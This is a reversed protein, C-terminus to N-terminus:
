KGCQYKEVMRPYANMIYKVFEDTAMAYCKQNANSPCTGVFESRANIKVNGCNYKDDPCGKPPDGVTPIAVMHPICSAELSKAPNKSAEKITLSSQPKCNNAKAWLRISALGAGYAATGLLENGGGGKLVLAALYANGAVNNLLWERRLAKEEDTLKKDNAPRPPYDQFKARAKASFYTCSSDGPCERLINSLAIQCIGFAVAKEKPQKGLMGSWIGSKLGTEHECIALLVCPDVGAEKAAAIIKQANTQADGAVAPPEKAGDGGGQAQAPSQVANFQGIEWESQKIVTIRLARLNILDPNITNLIVYAGLVLLLGLLADIIVTRGQRVKAGASSVIYLYGGYVIMIAAAVASAGILWRQFAAVYQAFFPIEIYGDKEMIQSDFSLGPININLVPPTVELPTKKDDPSPETSATEIKFTNEDFPGKVCTGGQSVSKCNEIKFSCILKNVDKNSSQASLLACNDNKTNICVTAKPDDPAMCGCCAASAPLSYSLIAFIGSVATIMLFPKLRIM